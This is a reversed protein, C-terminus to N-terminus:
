TKKIQIELHLYTSSAILMYVLAPPGTFLIERQFFSFRLLTDFHLSRLGLSSKLSNQKTYIAGWSNTVRCPSPQFYLITRPSRHSAKPSTAHCFRWKWIINVRGTLTTQTLSIWIVGIVRGWEWLVLSWEETVGGPIDSSIYGRGGPRGPRTWHITIDSGPFMGIGVEWMPVREYHKLCEWACITPLPSYLNSVTGIDKNQFTAQKSLTALHPSLRMGWLTPWLNAGHSALTWLRLLPLVRTLWVPGLTLNERLFLTLYEWFLLSAFCKESITTQKEVTHHKTICTAWLKREKRNKKAFANCLYVDSHVLNHPNHRKKLLSCLQVHVHVRHVHHLQM